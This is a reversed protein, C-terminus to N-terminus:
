YSLEAFLKEILEAAPLTSLEGQGTGAWLSMFDPSGMAVSANRLDRTFKNQAPFPLIAEPFKEMETMFRNEIGRALRGSFVRTTKTKRLSNELLQQRYPESTGAEPVALFATGMQVASAESELCDQIDASNMIGGAAILPIKIKSRCSSILDKLLIEADEKQPDFIARHGGAEKGQLVVADAQSDQIAQAEELTTAAGILKIGRAKAAKTYEASLTGFVYSFVEPKLKLVEEFQADFNEEYPPTLKVPSLKLEDRFKKTADIAQQLNNARVVPQPHPIFLNIAFGRNTKERLKLVFESIAPPSLYAAAVSGLAGVEGAATILEISSPGGAM